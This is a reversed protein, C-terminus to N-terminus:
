LTQAKVGPKSEEESKAEQEKLKKAYIELASLCSPLERVLNLNNLLVSQSSVDKLDVVWAYTEKSDMVTREALAAISFKGRGEFPVKFAGDADTSAAAVPEPMFHEDLLSQIRALRSKLSSDAKQKAQLKTQENTKEEEQLADIQANIALSQKGLDDKAAMMRKVIDTDDALRQKYDPSLQSAPRTLSSWRNQIESISDDLGARQKSLKSRKEILETTRALLDSARRVAALDEKSETAKIEAETKLVAECRTLFNTLRPLLIDARYVAVPVSGLKFSVGGDTSIFVQGTVERKHSCGVSISTVLLLLLPLHRFRMVADHKIIPASGLM